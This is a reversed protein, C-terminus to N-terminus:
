GNFVQKAAELFPQRNQELAPILFPRARMRHTGFELFPAYTTTPGIRAALGGSQFTPQISNKTAGTDVPVLEKARGEVNHAAIAVVAVLGPRLKAFLARLRADEVRVTADFRMM